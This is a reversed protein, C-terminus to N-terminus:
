KKHRMMLTIVVLIGLVSMMAAPIWTLLGGLQQDTQPDIPWARGCVDYVDYLETGSLAIYAGLWIQPLMVPFLILVRSAYGVVASSGSPKPNLMLWWFLLGDILMTWNMVHYLTLSLMADFHIEPILWFYILGVFLTPAVVPHQLFRYVLQVFRHRWVPQLWNERLREPTGLALVPWPVALAILFPGIHHLVLHQIRHMFFVYQAYYDFRTHLVFYCLALGVLFAIRRGAGVQIGQRGAERLGRIFLVLFLGASLAVPLSFQYPALFSLWRVPDM